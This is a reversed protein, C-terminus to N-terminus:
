PTVAAREAMLHLASRRLPPAITLRNVRGDHAVTWLDNELSVRMNIALLHERKLDYLTEVAADIELARDFFPSFDDPMQISTLLEALLRFNTGHDASSRYSVADVIENGRKTAQALVMPAAYGPAPLRALLTAEVDRSREEIRGLLQILDDKLM